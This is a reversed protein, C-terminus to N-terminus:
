KRRQDKRPEDSEDHPLCGHRERDADREVRCRDSQEPPPARGTVTHERPQDETENRERGSM